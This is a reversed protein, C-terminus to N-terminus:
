LLQQDCAAAPERLPWRGWDASRPRRLGREQHKRRRECATRAGQEESDRRTMGKGRARCLRAIRTVAAGCFRLRWVGIRWKNVSMRAGTVKRRATRNRAADM